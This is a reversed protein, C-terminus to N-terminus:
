MWNLRAALVLVVDAHHLAVSRASAVNCPHGDPVVGKGMPTPLIPLLTQDILRRLATVARAYSSGKGIVVLPASASKLLQVIRGVKAKDPSPLALTAPQCPLVASPPVKCTAQLFDAPFDVFGTGPRGHWAAQYAQTIAFPVASLTHPAASRAQLAALADFHRRAESLSGQRDLVIRLIRRHAPSPLLQRQQPHGPCETLM